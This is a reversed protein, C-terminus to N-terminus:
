VVLKNHSVGPTNPMLLSSIGYSAPFLLLAPLRADCHPEFCRKHAGFWPGIIAFTYIFVPLLIVVVSCHKIFLAM